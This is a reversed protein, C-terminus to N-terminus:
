ASGALHSTGWGSRHRSRGRGGACAPRGHLVEVVEGEVVDEGMPIRAPPPASVPMRATYADRAAVAERVPSNVRGPLRETLTAAVVAIATTWSSREGM